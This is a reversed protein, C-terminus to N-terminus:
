GIAGLVKGGLVDGTGSAQLFGGFFGPFGNIGMLKKASGNNMRTLPLDNRQSRFRNLICIAAGFLITLTIGTFAVM